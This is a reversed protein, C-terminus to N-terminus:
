FACEYPTFRGNLVKKSIIPWESEYQTVGEVLKERDQVTWEHHTAENDDEDNNFLKV